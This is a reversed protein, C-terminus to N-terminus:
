QLSYLLGHCDPIQSCWTLLAEWELLALSLEELELRALSLMWWVTMTTMDPEARGAGATGPEARGAGATGPEARGAGAM